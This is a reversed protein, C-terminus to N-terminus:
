DITSLRRTVTRWQSHFAPLSDTEQVLAGGSVFRISLEPEVEGLRGVQVLRVNDRWKPKTTLIGVAGAEFDPAVIAEIFRNPEALVEATEVDVTRNFGIVGGFASLPDGNLAKLAASAM